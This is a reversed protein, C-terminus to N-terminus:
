EEAELKYLNLFKIIMNVKEERNSPRIEALENGYFDFIRNCELASLKYIQDILHISNSYRAGANEDAVKWPFHVNQSGRNDIRVFRNNLVNLSKGFGDM